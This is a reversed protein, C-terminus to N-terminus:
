VHCTLTRCAKLSIRRWKAFCTKWIAVTSKTVGMKGDTVEICPKLNLLNAGLAQVGTCRGGKYMYLLTSIIFATRVKGTMGLIQQEIEKGSFGEDRLEAAKIALIGM